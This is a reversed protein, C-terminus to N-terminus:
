DDNPGPPNNMILQGYEVTLKHYSTRWRHYEFKKSATDVVWNVPHEDANMSYNDLYDYGLGLYSDLSYCMDNISLNFIAGEGAEATFTRSYGFFPSDYPDPCNPYNFTHSQTPFYCMIYNGNSWYNEYHEFLNLLRQLERKATTNWTYTSDLTFYVDCVEYAAWEDDFYWTHDGLDKSNDNFSTMLAIKAKGDADISVNIFYLNQDNHNFGKKFQQIESCMQEYATSIDGLLMTGDTVNVQMEVTDFQVENYEVNVNCFDLNALCALHWAADELNYAENDKSETLRKRFDTFYAKKDEIQRYDISQQITRDQQSLVNENDKKCSVISVTTALIAMATIAFISKSTKM